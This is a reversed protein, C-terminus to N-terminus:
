QKGDKEANEVITRARERLERLTKTDTAEALETCLADLEDLRDEAIGLAKEAEDCSEQAATNEIKAIDAREEADAVDDCACRRLYIDIYVSGCRPCRYDRTETDVRRRPSVKPRRTVLM